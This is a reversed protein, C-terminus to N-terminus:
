SVSITGREKLLSAYPTWLGGVATIYDEDTSDRDMNPNLSFLLLSMDQAFDTFQAFEPGAHSVLAMRLAHDPTAVDEIYVDRAVNAVAVSLRELANRDMAMAYRQSFTLETM